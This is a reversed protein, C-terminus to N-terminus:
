MLSSDKLLYYLDIIESKIVKEKGLFFEDVARKAGPWSTRNYDDFAIVGGEQVLPYFFDLCDIYSQYLDCDLHLLAIPKKEYVDFSNPFFGKVLQIYKDLFDKEVGSNLLYNIVSEKNTKYHGKNKGTRNTEDYNSTEPFGEFSDFGWIKRGRGELESLLSFNYLSRGWGVGCEVISGDIDKIKSFINKHYLFRRATSHLFPFPQEKRIKVSSRVFRYGFLKELLNNATKKM